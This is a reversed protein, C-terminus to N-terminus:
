VTDDCATAFGHAQYDGDVVEDAKDGGMMLM